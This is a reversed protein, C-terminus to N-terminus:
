SPDTPRDSVTSTPDGAAGVIRWQYRGAPCRSGPSQGDVSEPCHTSAVSPRSGWPGSAGPRAFGVRLSATDQVPHLPRLPGLVVRGQVQRDLQAVGEPQRHQGDEAQRGVVRPGLAPMIAEQEVRMGSIARRDSRAPRRREDSRSPGGSSTTGSRQRSTGAPTGRRRRSGAAPRGATAPPPRRAPRPATGSRRHRRPRATKGTGSAPTRQASSGASSGCTQSSYRRGIGLGSPRLGGPPPRFRGRPRPSRGRRGARLPELDAADALHGAVAAPRGLRLRRSSPEDALPQGPVGGLPVLRGRVRGALQRGVEVEAVDARQCAGQRDPVAVGAALVDVGIEFLQDDAALQRDVEDGPVRVVVAQLAAGGPGQLGEGLVGPVAPRM